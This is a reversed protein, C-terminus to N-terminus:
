GELARWIVTVVKVGLGYQKAVILVQGHNHNAVRYVYRRIYPANGFARMEAKSVQAGERWLRRMLPLSFAGLRQLSRERAHDSVIIYTM